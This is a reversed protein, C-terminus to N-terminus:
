KLQSALSDISSLASVEIGTGTVWQRAQELLSAANSGLSPAELKSLILNLTKGYKQVQSPSPWPTQTLIMNFAATLSPQAISDIWQSLDTRSTLFGLAEVTGSEIALIVAEAFQKQSVQTMISNRTSENVPNTAKPEPRPPPPTTSEPPSPTSSSTNTSVTTSSVSHTATAVPTAPAPSSVSAAVKNKKKAPTTTNAASNSNPNMTSPAPSSVTVNSSAASGKLPTAPTLITPTAATPTSSNAGSTNSASNSAMKSPTNVSTAASSTAKNLSSAANEKPAKEASGPQTASASQTPVPTASGSATAVSVDRYLTTVRQSATALGSVLPDIVKATHLPALQAFYGTAATELVDSVDQVMIGCARQYGPALADRFYLGFANAAPDHVSEAISTAIHNVEVAKAQAEVVSDLVPTIASMIASPLEKLCKLVHAQKKQTLTRNNRLGELYVQNQQALIERLAELTIYSSNSTGAAANAVPAGTAIGENSVAPNTGFPVHSPTPAAGLLQVAPTVLPVLETTLDSFQVTMANSDSVGVFGQSPDSTCLENIPARLGFHFIQDNEVNLIWLAALYPHSIIIMNKSSQRLLRYSASQAIHHEPLPLRLPFNFLQSLRFRLPSSTQLRWIRIQRNTAGSTTAFVFPVTSVIAINRSVADDISCVMEGNNQRYIRIAGSMGTTIVYDEALVIDCAPEPLRTMVLYSPLDPKLIGSGNEPFEATTVHDVVKEPNQTAAVLDWICIQGDFFAIALTTTKSPHWCVKLGSKPYGGRPANAKFTARPQNIDQVILEGKDTVAAVFTDFHPSFSIDLIQGSMQAVTRVVGDEWVQLQNGNAFCYKKSKSSAILDYHSSSVSPVIFSLDSVQLAANSEILPVTVVRLAESTGSPNSATGSSM